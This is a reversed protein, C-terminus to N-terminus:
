LGRSKRLIPGLDRRHATASAASTAVSTTSTSALWSATTTVGSACKDVCDQVEERVTGMNARIHRVGKGAFGQTGHSGFTVALHGAIVRRLRRHFAWIRQVHLCMM